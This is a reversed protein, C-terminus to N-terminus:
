MYQFLVACETGGEIQALNAKPKRFVKDNSRSWSVSVTSQVMM